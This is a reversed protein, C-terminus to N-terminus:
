YSCSQTLLEQYQLGTALSRAMHGSTHKMHRAARIARNLSGDVSKDASLSRRTRGKMESRGRVRSSTGTSNSPSMYLPSSYLLLPPPCVPMCQLLAPQAAAACYRIKAVRDPSEAPRYSTHPPSDSVRRCDSESSRYPEPCGCLPCHRCYSSRTLERNGGVSRESRGRQRLLCQPCLPAQRRRSDPEDATDCPQESVGPHQTPHTRSRVTNRDPAAAPTQTCRSVLPQPQPTSPESCTDPQLKLKQRHASPPRKRTTRRLPSEEVRDAVRRDRRGRSVDTWREGSRVRPTSTNHHTYKQATPAARLTSLPTKNRLCSELRERLRTVEAQLMQIADNRNVVQSSSLATLSDRHHYQATPSSSSSNPPSISERYQNSQGGESASHTSDSELGFESTGSDARTHDTQNAWRRPSNSFTCRRQRPRRPQEPLQSAGRPEVATCRHSPSSAPSSASVTGAQPKGPNGDQPVSVSESARQHLPSAAAAPTVRSSESGVFGSDTEPSIIGDQSLVRSSGAQLKSNRGELATIEGLSSLSSSYSKGVKLSRRSSPPHGPPTTSRSTQQKSTHVPPPDQHDPKRQPPSRQNELIGTEEGEGEKEMEGHQMDARLAASLPAGDRETHDLLKPLEKFSQYHDMLKTFEQEVHKHKGRPKLYLSNLTEEDEMEEDDSEDSASSVEVAAAEGPDALLPVPPSQPHTLTVRGDSPSPHPPPSPPADCTPQQQRMQEVQEKLEDMRLGCQFILGELEREPDFHSIEAGQQQLLRHEDRILLYGRELSDLGDALRSLGQVQEFHKLKKSKLLDDFTRLQQLFKNAQSYLITALQQGVQPEPSRTSPCPSSSRQHVSHGNPHLFASDIAARQAQPFDLTMIRSAGQNLGSQVLHGPKPPDSYLHVKAGLRLRDITNKAEAHKTLLRNYDEQLQELLSTAQQRCRFEQPVISNPASTPTRHSDSPAPSGDTTNLLIEKVIDAPSKFVLPSEPSLAERKTSRRSEPPKYGKPFHVRAEVKSFDPTHYSLPGKRPEDVEAANSRARPTRPERDPRVTQHNFKLADTRVTSFSRTKSSTAKPSLQRTKRPSPTPQKHHKDSKVSGKLPANRVRSYHNSVVEESFMSVPQLLTRLKKEPHGPSPRLSTHSRHSEPPSETFSIEPFTEVEIGPAAAMEEATFHLLHPLTPARVQSAPQSIPCHHSSVGNSICSEGLASITELQGSTGTHEKKKRKRVEEGHKEEETTDICKDREPLCRIGQDENRQGVEEDVRWAKLSGMLDDCPSLIQADEGLSETHFLHESLSNSLEEPPTDRERGGFDTEEATFTGPYLNLNCEADAEGSPKGLEVDELAESLGIIGNEDMQSVFDDDKETQEEDEDEWVDESIVSSSPSTRAPAATWFLVGATTNKRTEM